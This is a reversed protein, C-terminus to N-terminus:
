ILPQEYPLNQGRDDLIPQIKMAQRVSESVINEADIVERLQSVSEVRRGEDTYPRNYLYVIDGNGDPADPVLVGGFYKAPSQGSEPNNWIDRAFDKLTQYMRHVRQKTGGSNFGSAGGFSVGGMGNLESIDSWRVRGKEKAILLAHAYQGYHVNDFPPRNPMGCCGCWDCKEKHHQDSVFFRLGHKHCLEQLTEMYPRKIDYSLRLLGSRAQSYKRYFGWMDFGAIRGIEAYKDEAVNASRTELCLFETTLSYCGSEKTRVVYQELQDKTKQSFPFDASVGLIFPRFRATTGGVGLKNLEELAKFREEPASVGKEMRRAKEQDLTIISVKFHIHDAGKLQERYRDDNVFWTGKTSISLPYQIERFFKLLELSKGFQKEYYDFGDSLGGWQMVMRRQIYWDFDSKKKGLFLDRVGEVNVSQVKHHIYDEKGDGIARQFASFCYLCAFSCNSYTDFSMPMACDLVESSWRPSNYFGPQLEM